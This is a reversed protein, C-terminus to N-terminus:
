PVEGGEPIALKLDGAEFRKLQKAFYTKKPDMVMCKKIAEIAKDKDGRQFHIEALTDLYGPNDPALRVAENAHDLAVDLERRCNVLLWAVANHERYSKPYDKCLRLRRELLPRLLEDAEKKRDAKELAPVVHLAPEIALPLITQCAKAETLADDLKGASLLGRARLMHIRYPVMVHSNIDLFHAQPGLIPLMAAQQFDAAALFDGGQVKESMAQLLSQGRQLSAPQGLTLILARERKSEDLHGRKNLEFAFINRGFGNGLPLWHSLEIFHRGEKDNGAQILAWGHLFLPLQQLNDEDWSQKYAQAAKDWQKKEAFLDGQRLLLAPTKGVALAKELYQERLADQGAAQASESVALYARATDKSNLTKAHREMFDALATLEEAKVKGAVLDRVRTMQQAPKEDPQSKRLFAWWAAASPGKDLFLRNFLRAPMGAVKTTALLNAADEFAQDKLGLRNEVDILAEFWSAYSNESIQERLPKLLAQAREEERLGYLTRARLLDFMPKTKPDAAGEKEALAFAEKVKMQTALIEFAAYINKSKILIAVADDPQDNLFLAKAAQWHAPDTDPKGAAAKGIEQCTLRVVEQEGALRYCAAMMGLEPIVMERTKRTLPALKKWEGQEQLLAELLDPGGYIEAAYLSNKRDGKARYLYALTHAARRGSAFKNMQPVLEKIKDDIKGRFYWYAAYNAAGESTDSALSLELLEELLTLQGEVLLSPVSQTLSQACQQYLQRRQTEDPEAKAIKLIASRGHVGMNFLQGGAQAKANNDLSNKYHRIQEVVNAPTDPYIGWRVDELIEEARRKAEAEGNRFAEELAAEASQGAARLRKSANERTQFDNSDLDKIWGAIEAKTAQGKVPEDAWTLASVGFIALSTLLLSFRLM